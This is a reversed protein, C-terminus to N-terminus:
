TPRQVLQCQVYRRRPETSIERIGSVHLVTPPPLLLEYEGKDWLPEVWGAQTGRPLSIELITCSDVSTGWLSVQRAVGRSLSTSMFAKEQLYDGTKLHQDPYGYKLGRYVTLPFPLAATPQRLALTLEQVTDFLDDLERDSLGRVAGTRLFRNLKSYEMAKYHRLATAQEPTLETLWKQYVQDLEGSLEHVFDQEDGTTFNEFFEPNTM